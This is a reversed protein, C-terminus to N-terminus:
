AVTFDLPVVRMSFFQVIDPFYDDVMYIAFLHSDLLSDGLNRAYESSFICSLHDPGSNFKERKV